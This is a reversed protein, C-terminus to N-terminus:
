RSQIGKGWVRPMLRWGEPSVGDAESGGCIVVIEADHGASLLTARKCSEGAASVFAEEITVEVEGGFDADIVVASAGPANVAMFAVVPSQVVAEPEPVPQSQWFCGGLLLAAFLLVLQRM